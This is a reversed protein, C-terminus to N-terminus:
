RALVLEQGGPALVLEQRHVEGGPQVILELAWLLSILKGSFSYPGEPLTFSFERRESQAPSRFREEAVIEVDQDGKGQTYWFLRLSVEELPNQVSWSATGSLTSKPEFSRNGGEIEIRLESM